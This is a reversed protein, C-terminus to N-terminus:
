GMFSNLTAQVIAHHITNLSHANRADEPILALSISKCVTHVGRLHFCIDPQVTGKKLVFLQRDNKELKRLIIFLGYFLRPRNKTLRLPFQHLIFIYIGHRSNIQPIGEVNMRGIFPRETPTRRTNSQFIDIAHLVTLQVGILLSVTERGIDATRVPSLLANEQGKVIRRNQRRSPIIDSSKLAEVTDPPNRQIGHNPSIPDKQRSIVLFDRFYPIQLAAKEGAINKYVILITQRNRGKGRHTASRRRIRLRAM